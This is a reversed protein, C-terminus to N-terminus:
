DYIINCTDGNKIAKQLASYSIGLKCCQDNDCLHGAFWWQTEPLLGPHEDTIRIMLGTCVIPSSPDNFDVIEKNQNDIVWEIDENKINPDIKAAAALTECGIRKISSPHVRCELVYQIYKGSKFNKRAAVPIAKVESYRPHSAYAISPTFYIGAGLAAINAPKLGNLLISLGYEFKTGHYGICWGSFKQDFNDTVYFSWRKWGIPCYYPKGGRDKGDSIAGQWFNHGSAYIRNFKPNLNIKAQHKQMKRLSEEPGLFLFFTKIQGLDNQLRDNCSNYILTLLRKKENSEIKDSLSLTMIASGNQIKQIEFINVDVKVKNCFQSMYDNVDFKSCDEDIGIKLIPSKLGISKDLVEDAVSILPKGTSSYYEKCQNYHIIEEQSIQEDTLYDKTNKIKGNLYIQQNQGLGNMSIPKQKQNSEQYVDGEIRQIIEVLHVNQTTIHRLLYKTFLSNREAQSTRGAMQNPDCAFQVFVGPSPSIKQLGASKVTSNTATSSALLYNQACDLIFVSVYSTNKKVLRTLARDFDVGFFQLDTECKIKDDDIPILYNAGNVQSACGSYYFLILDGNGINKIFDTILKNMEQEAIDCATTVNFDMRKLADSLDGANNAPYYLKNRSQSYAGNGIILALKRHRSPDNSSTAM